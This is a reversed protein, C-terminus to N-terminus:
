KKHLQLTELKEQSNLIYKLYREKSIIKVVIKRSFYWQVTYLTYLIVLFFFSYFIFFLFFVYIFFIGKKLLYIYTYIFTSAFFLYYKKERGYCKVCRFFFFSFLRQCQFPLSSYIIPPDFFFRQIFSVCVSVRLRIWM